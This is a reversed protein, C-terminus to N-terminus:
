VALRTDASVAQTIDIILENEELRVAWFSLPATAPGNLVDGQANFRSGHCPCEFQAGAQGVTCGLHTCVANLAYFGGADRGLWAVAEPVFTLSDPAFDAPPGASVPQPQAHTLPPLLFQLVVRGMQWAATLLGLGGLWVLFGRRSLETSDPNSM